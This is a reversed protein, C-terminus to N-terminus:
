DKRLIFKKYEKESLNITMQHSQDQVIVVHTIGNFITYFQIYIDTYIYLYIYIYILIYIDYINIDIYRYIYIYIDIDIYM